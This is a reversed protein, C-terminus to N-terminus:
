ENGKTEIMLANILMQDKYVKTVRLKEDLWKLFIGQEQEASLIQKIKDKVEDFILTKKNVRDEVKILHYGFASAIPGLIKANKQKFAPDFILIQGEEVWGVLGKKQAEPAISFTEALEGFDQKQKNLLILLDEAQNQEKVLIQRILVKAPNFYEEKNRNYYDKCEEDTPQTIQKQLHSFFKSILLQREVSKKFSSETFNALILQEKFLLESEYSSVITQYASEIEDPKILIQKSLVDTLILKELILDSAIRNQYVKIIKPNKAAVMDLHSLRQALEKAYDAASISTEGVKIITQNGPKNSPTCAFLIILYLFLCLPKM